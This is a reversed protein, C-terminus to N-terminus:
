FKWVRKLEKASFGCDREIRDRPMTQELQKFARPVAVDASTPDAARGTFLGGPCTSIVRRFGDPAHNRRSVPQFLEIRKGTTVEEYEYIPM